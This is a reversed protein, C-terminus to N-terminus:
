GNSLKIQKEEQKRHLKSKLLMIVHVANPHSLCEFLVVGVELTDSIDEM